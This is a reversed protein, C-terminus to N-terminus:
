NRRFSGEIEPNHAEPRRTPPSSHRRSDTPVDRARYTKGEGARYIAKALIAAPPMGNSALALIRHAVLDLTAPDVENRNELIKHAEQFVRALAQLSEPEFYARPM